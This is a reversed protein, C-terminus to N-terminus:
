SRGWDDRCRWSDERVRHRQALREHREKGGQHWGIMWERILWRVIVTVQAALTELLQPGPLGM